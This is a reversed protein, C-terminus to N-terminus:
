TLWPDLLLIGQPLAAAWAAIEPLVRVLRAAMHAQGDATNQPGWQYLAWQEHHRYLHDGVADLQAKTWRSPVVCLSDGLQPRLRAEVAAVDSAAVVLVARNPAPRFLTVAVAAGTAQLDGLDYDLEIDGRRTVTPWGQPPPPCPPIVWRPAWTRRPPPPAQQEVHLQGGSWTGTVLAWGEVAGGREFRHSVAGLDAGVVRVAGAQRVPRVGRELGDPEAVPLSPQFWDGESSRILWGSARVRDGDRVVLADVDM